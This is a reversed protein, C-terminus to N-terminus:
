NSWLRKRKSIGHYDSSNSWLLSLLAMIIARIQGCDSEKALVMITAQIPGCCSEKALVM